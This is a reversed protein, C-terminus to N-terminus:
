LINQFRFLPFLIQFYRNLVSIIKKMIFTRIEVIKTDCKSMGNPLVKKTRVKFVFRSRVEFRM